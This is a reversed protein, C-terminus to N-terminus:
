CSLHDAVSNVNVVKPYRAEGMPRREQAIGIAVRPLAAFVMPEITAIWGNRHDRCVQRLQNFPGVQMM